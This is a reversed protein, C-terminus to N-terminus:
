RQPPQRERQFTNSKRQWFIKWGTLTHHLKVVIDPTAITILENTIVAIEKGTKLDCVVLKDYDSSLITPM